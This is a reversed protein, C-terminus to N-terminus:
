DTEAQLEVDINKIINKIKGKLSGETEDKEAKVGFM